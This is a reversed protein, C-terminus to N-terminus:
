LLEGQVILWSDNGVRQLTWAFEADMWAPVEEVVAGDTDVLRVAAFDITSTLLVQDAMVKQVVLDWEAYRHNDARLGAERASAFDQYASQCAACSSAFHDAFTDLDGGTAAANASAFYAELAAVASEGADHEVKPQQTERDAARPTPPTSETRLTDLTAPEASSSCGALLFALLTLVGTTGRM